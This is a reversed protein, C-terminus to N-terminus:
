KCDTFGAMFEASIERYEEHSSLLEFLPRVLELDPNAQSPSHMIKLISQLLRGMAQPELNKQQVARIVADYM